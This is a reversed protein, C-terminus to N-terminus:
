ETDDENLNVYDDKYRIRLTSYTHHRLSGCTRRVDEVLSSFSHKLVIEDVVEAEIYFKVIKEQRM